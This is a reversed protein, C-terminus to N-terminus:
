VIIYQIYVSPKAAIMLEAKKLLVTKIGWFPVTPPMYYKSQGNRQGGTLGDTGSGTRHMDGINKSTPIGFKTHPHM